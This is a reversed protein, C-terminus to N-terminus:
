VISSSAAQEETIDRKAEDSEKVRKGFARLERLGALSFRMLHAARLKSVGHPRAFHAVPVDVSRWGRLSAGVSLMISPALPAPGIDARLDLWVRRRFLKFPVNPDALRRRALRSAVVRVFSTLVLRHRPDVREVRTGAVVDHHSRIDWLRWFDTVDFQGDSDMLFVWPRSAAGLGTVISPGHGRNVESRLVKLAPYRQVLEGLLNPTEDTSCDDVVVLESGPLREVIERMIDDVVNEIVPAENFAPVVVSVQGDGKM